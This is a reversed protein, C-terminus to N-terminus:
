VYVLLQIGLGARQGSGCLIAREVGDEVVVEGRGSEQRGGREVNVDEEVTSTWRSDDVTDDCSLNENKVEARPVVM